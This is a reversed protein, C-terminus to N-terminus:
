LACLILVVFPAMRQQSRTLLFMSGQYQNEKFVKIFSETYWLFQIWNRAPVFTYRAREEITQQYLNEVFFCLAYFFAPINYSFCYHVM